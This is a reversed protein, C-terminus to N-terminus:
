NSERQYSEKHCPGGNGVQDTISKFGHDLLWGHIITHNYQDTNDFQWVAGIPSRSEFFGIEIQLSNVNHPGDFYVYAYQNVLKREEEYIPVGNAFRQFFDEDTMVFILLEQETKHCWTYLDKLAIQKMSNTYDARNGPGRADGHYFIHGWPDIGIHIRKDNNDQCAKMITASGLGRRVGIECTLGPVGKILQAGKRMVEYNQAYADGEFEVGDFM